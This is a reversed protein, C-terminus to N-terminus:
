DFYGTAKLSELSEEDMEPKKRRDKKPFPKLYNFLETSILNFDKERTQYLDHNEAPDSLLDYFEHRHNSAWLLKSARDRRGKLDRQFRKVRTNPDQFIEGVYIRGDHPVDALNSLFSKGQIDSPSTLKLYEMLTPLIDINRIIGSIRKGKPINPGIMLLPVRIQEEYLAHGHDLIKHEGISEGHDSTIVVLTNSLLSNQRLYDFLKSLQDDMFRIEGDYLAKLAEYDDERLPKGDKAIREGTSRDSYIGEIRGNMRSPSTRYMKSYAAPPLYPDHPDFYNIFAFFPKRKSNHDFWKFLQQNVEIANRQGDVWWLPKQYFRRIVKVFMLRQIGSLPDLQDDYYEFGQTVNFAALLFPGSVFAATQYGKRKLIEALCDESSDLWLHQYTAGHVSPLKGTFISSHSPLTWSSVAFANEFLVGESALKALFPTTDRKYGYPTLHDARTTDLTILIVNPLSVNQGHQKKSGAAIPTQFVLALFSVILMMLSAGTFYRSPVSAHIEPAISKMFGFIMIIALGTGALGAASFFGSPIMLNWVYIAWVGAWLALITLFMKSSVRLSRFFFFLVAALILGTLGYITFAAHLNWPDSSGPISEHSLKLVFAELLGIFASLSFGIVLSPLLSTETQPNRM